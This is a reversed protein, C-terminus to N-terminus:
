LRNFAAALVSSVIFGNYCAHAIVSARVSGAYHRLLTLALAAPVLAAVYTIGYGIHMLLWLTATTVGTAFSGVYRRMSSWLWGRFFLEETVPGVMVAIIAGVMLLYPNVSRIEMALGSFPRFELWAAIYAVLAMLLVAAPVTWLPRISGRLLGTMLGSLLGERRGRWLASWIMLAYTIGGSIILGTAMADQFSHFYRYLNVREAVLFYLCIAVLGALQAVLCWFVALGVPRLAPFRVLWRFADNPQKCEDQKPDVMCDSGNTEGDQRM